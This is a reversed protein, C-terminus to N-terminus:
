TCFEVHLCEPQLHRDRGPVDSLYELLFLVYAVRMSTILHARELEPRRASFPHCDLRDPAPHGGHDTHVTRLELTAHSRSEVQRPPFGIVFGHRSPPNKRAVAKRPIGPAGRVLHEVLPRGHHHPVVPEIQSVGRGPAEACAVNPRRGAFVNHHPVLQDVLEAVSRRTQGRAAVAARQRRLGGASHLWNVYLRRYFVM